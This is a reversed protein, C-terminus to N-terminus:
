GREKAVKSFEVFSSLRECLCDLLGASQQETSMFVSPQSSSASTSTSPTSSASSVSPFLSLLMSGGLRLSLESGTFRLKFEPVDVVLSLEWSM